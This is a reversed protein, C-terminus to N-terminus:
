CKGFWATLYAFIDQVNVGGVGNFDARPDGSFWLTLFTFIDTVTVTLDANADLSGRSGPFNAPDAPNSCALIEDTDYFGDADRDVGIRVQSGIPVLTFTIESGAAAGTRLAAVGTSESLRDSQMIGAAYVWGRAAGALRGKATLGVAGSNALTVFTNLRTISAADTNNTGDFTIQQGVGPHTEGQFCLLLAEVDHRQQIGNAGGAFNFGAQLLAFLTDFESHHNFGFGKTNTQSAKNMGVKEWLGRLQVAKMSQPALALNPDDIQGITGSGGAPGHCSVCTAGGALVPLTNYLNLGTAPIGTTNGSTPMSAPLTNDFNRNLNPGYKITAVFDTLQQLQAASPEADAGQLGTFAPGFAAMTERDGRWHFPETGIIGQFTQTVMQGKMPHWDDCVPQRRLIFSQSSTRPVATVCSCRSVKTFFIWSARSLSSM